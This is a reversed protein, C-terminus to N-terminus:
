RTGNTSAIVYAGCSQATKFEAGDKWIAVRICGGEAKKQGSIFLFEGGRFTDFTEKWPLAVPDQQQM